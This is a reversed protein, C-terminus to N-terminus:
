DTIQVIRIQRYDSKGLQLEKEMLAEHLERKTNSISDIISDPTRLAILKYVFVQKLQPQRYIRGVLQNEELGSWLADQLLCFTVMLWKFYRDFLSVMIIMFNACDLNLGTMGM